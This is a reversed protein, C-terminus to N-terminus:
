GIVASSCGCHNLPSYYYGRVTTSLINYLWGRRQRTTGEGDKDGKAKKHSTSVAFREIGFIDDLAEGAAQKQRRYLARSEDSKADNDASRYVTGKNGFQRQYRSSAGGGGRRRNGNKQMAQGFVRQGGPAM